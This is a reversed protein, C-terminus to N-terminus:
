RTQIDIIYPESDNKDPKDKCTFEARETQLLYQDSKRCNKQININEYKSASAKCVEFLVGNLLKTGKM